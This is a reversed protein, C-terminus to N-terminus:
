ILSVEKKYPRVSCSVHDADKGGLNVGISSLFLLMVTVMLFVLM